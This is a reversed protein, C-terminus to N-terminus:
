PPPRLTPLQAPSFRPADSADNFHHLIWNLHGSRYLRAFADVAEPWYRTGRAAELEVVARDAAAEGVERRYPRLSTMADFSDIVSFFRAPLAIHEGALGDPYGKGDWREHHHRVLDLILPDTEEMRRLAAHGFVTHTKVINYEDPTLPGPKQLIEDPLDIKGLDHLAAGTTLRAIAAHDVGFQEALARAYLVVRWTHAATSLDKLEIAKVLSQVIVPDLLTGM